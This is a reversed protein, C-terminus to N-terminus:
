ICKLYGKPAFSWGFREDWETTEYMGVHESLYREMGERPGDGFNPLCNQVNINTDEVILFDGSRIFSELATMENYVHQASHDSDLLILVKGKRMAVLSEWLRKDSSDHEILTVNNPLKSMSFDLQTLDIDIGVYRAHDSFYVASGGLCVGTEIVLDIGESHIIEQYNFIDAVSKHIRWGKYKQRKWIETNYYWNHYEEFEQRNLYAKLM